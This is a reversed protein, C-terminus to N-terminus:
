KGVWITGALAADPNELLEERMVSVSRPANIGLKCAGPELGIVQISVHGDITIEEMLSMWLSMQGGNWQIALFVQNQAIQVVELRIGSDTVVVTNKKRKLVLM